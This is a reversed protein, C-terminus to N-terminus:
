ETALAALIPQRSARRAPRIGALVGALGGAVLFIVLQMTPMAFESLASSSSADVVAWGLFAGLLMGGVTGFVATIVSEWRVMARVQRRTQGVARLLGLERTREHVALSLTNAIGMLAIVIALALMVYILGLITNVGGTASARYEARDQVRATGYPGIVARAATQVSPLDAADVRLLVQGVLVQPAHPMWATSDLLYDGTLATNAYIASVPVRATSGDPYTIPLVTGVRWGHDAAASSSVAFTGLRGHRIGLDLVAGVTGPDVVSVRESAGDLLVNGVSIPSAEQVGRLRGLAAALQPSLGANGSAGGYGPTDVVLDARLTRDIGAGASAKLSAGIVTFLAVVAVGIMLATATAATRRPNRRANQAALAGAVGRAAAVPRGLTTTALRAAFPGLVIMGAVLLLAGLGALPTSGSNAGAVAAVIGAVGILAGLVLRRAGLGPPEVAVARLAAVPPVRSARVAPVLGALVTALVGVGVALLASSTRFVLGGAPLAFGFGDFVGKLLAAIGIGGAWGVVSGVVGVVLTEALASRLIQGRSAGVARLLASERARQAVLIAFTNYISLAAVLLAIVAFVTLGTRLFGLFGNNIDAISEDALQTGTIAQVGPPLTPALRGILEEPTVGPAAAVLIQRVQDPKTTLHQQAAHLTLGAFTGSGFGNANGFKAIGVVRVRLPQPTLLTTVSGLSLHGAAAAGRNIVVDDDAQPARGAVLHYPNLAPDTVWNAAQTPPGNGGIPNGNRGLLRGFGELYPQADAVGPVARLRPLLAADINARKGDPGTTIATASRVVVDTGADAQRFLTNFNARMTDGLLLTGALFAVGLAVAVVTTLLRRKRAWVQRMVVHLV